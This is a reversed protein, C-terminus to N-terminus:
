LPVRRRHKLFGTENDGALLHLEIQLFHDVDDFRTSDKVINHM